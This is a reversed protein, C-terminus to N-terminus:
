PGWALGGPHAHPNGYKEQISALQQATTPTTGWRQPQLQGQAAPLPISAVGRLLNVLGEAKFRTERYTHAPPIIGLLFNVGQPLGVPASGGTAMNRRAADLRRGAAGKLPSEGRALKRPQASDDADELPRKPSQGVPLLNGLHPSNTLGPSVLRQQEERIQPPIAPMPEEVSSMISPMVPKMQTRPSIIPRVTTPDFTPGAFRQSFRYLQPDEPFLTTMRQELKTIQTLEGFQSEYEHFFVFLSKARHINEPKATLKGVVTEFVARANTSDNLKILHKIYELAFQEDEPFLKMGREFIKQAAPDQYCHHEILASAVYAESLLKGKKRAETFVGRFGAIDEKPNGKGQVRRIARMLAIWAYTLTKKLVHTQANYGASIAQLQTQFADDKEKLRRAIQVEDDDDADDANRQAITRAAEDAMKQAEFQERARAISHEERKKVQATLDYLTDLLNMYPERVAKGKAVVGPQGDEFDTRLEVQNAKKFALLCSEPNAEIGDALFKDGETPLGNEFCWEAAEYWLESWFRLPMLACKYLHLVRKNYLDRDDTACEIPDSREWHIWNKWLKVQNMYDEHGDFGPAPPLKPLTTRNVGRTINNDLVNIASRATMYSPSKEQLHKRGTAKNLGMEFKDYDRWIEMTANHPISVARQYVKRLTDMKQMDQWNTGGLIGPGTKLMEIYDLWLKGAAVDIGVQGLVFEYAQIIIQRNQGNPDTTLNYRRRIFDIYSSYLAVYPALPVSRGFIHEVKSLEDLETEFAIYEVWQEGATPFVALFREFAARADDHKHRRRHEEILSLWAEIDGRPDEAIRDELIGVRDQPLRAKPLSASTPAPTAPAASQRASAVTLPDPAGPKTADPVPANGNLLSTAISPVPEQVTVSASFSAAAQDQASHLQVHPTPLTNNPTNTFSRQPSAAAAGPANLLTGSAAKPQTAPEEDEDESEDVFGGVTRPRKSPTPAASADASTPAPQPQLGIEGEGDAAPPPTNAASEPMSASQDSVHPSYATNPDYEEQDAPADNTTYAVSPDYEQQQAQLFALEADDAM